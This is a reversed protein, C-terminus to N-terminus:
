KGGKPFDVIIFRDDWLHSELLPLVQNDYDLGGLGCGPRPLAVKSWRYMDALKRLQFISSEVREITSPNRVDEKTPFSVLDPRLLYVHNGHAKILSGLEYSVDPYRLVAELACGAGMVNNGGSLVTGNTTVCRVDAEVSWLDQEVEIM